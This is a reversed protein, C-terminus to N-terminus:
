SETLLRTVFGRLRAALYKNYEGALLTASGPWLWWREYRVNQSMVPEAVITMEPMRQHFELLSRPMHFDATVLRLSTIDNAVLWGATEIANERTNRAARGLTVCCELVQAKLRDAPILDGLSADPGVGSILLLDSADAALLATGRDVRGRGGTLVVIAGTRVNQGTAPARPINDVFLVLGVIWGAALLSVPLTLLRWRRKRRGAM